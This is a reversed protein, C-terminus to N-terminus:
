FLVAHFFKFYRETLLNDDEHTFSLCVLHDQLRLIPWYNNFVDSPRVEKILMDISIRHGIDFYYQATSPELHKQYLLNWM